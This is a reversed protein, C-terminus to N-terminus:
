RFVVLISLAAHEAAVVHADADGVGRPVFVDGDDAHPVRHEFAGGVWAGRAVSQAVQAEVGPGVVVPVAAAVPGVRAADAPLLLGVPPVEHDQHSVHLTELQLVHADLVGVGPRDIEFPDVM